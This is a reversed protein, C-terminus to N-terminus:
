LSRHNVIGVEGEQIWSVTISMIFLLSFIIKWMQIIWFIFSIGWSNSFSSSTKFLIKSLSIFLWKWIKLIGYRKKCILSNLDFQVYGMYFFISIDFIFPILSFSCWCYYLSFFEMKFFLTEWKPNFVLEMIYQKFSWIGLIEYWSFKNFKLM